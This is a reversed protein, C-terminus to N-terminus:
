HVRQGNNLRARNRHAVRGPLLRHQEAFPVLCLALLGPFPYVVGAPIVSGVDIVTIRGTLLGQPEVIRVFRWVYAALRGAVLAHVGYRVGAGQEPALGLEPDVRGGGFDPRDPAQAPRGGGDDGPRGDVLVLEDRQGRQVLVVAQVSGDQGRQRDNQGPLRM